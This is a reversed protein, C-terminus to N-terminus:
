YQKTWASDVPTLFFFIWAGSGATLFPRVRFRWFIVPSIETFVSRVICTFFLDSPWLSVNFLVIFFLSPLLSAYNGHFVNRKLTVFSYISRAVFIVCVAIKLRPLNIMNLFSLTELNRHTKKQQKKKKKATFYNLEKM